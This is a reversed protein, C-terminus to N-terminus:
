NYINVADSNKDKQIIYGDKDFTLIMEGAISLMVHNNNAFYMLCDSDTRMQGILDIISTGPLPKVRFYYLEDAKWVQLVLLTGDIPQSHLLQQVRM